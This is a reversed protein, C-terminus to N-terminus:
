RAPPAVCYTVNTDETLPVMQQVIGFMDMKRVGALAMLRYFGYSAGSLGLVGVLIGFITELDTTKYRLFVLVTLFLCSFFMIMTARSKRNEVRWEEVPSDSAPPIAYIDYANSFLYSFFFVIHAVWFSPAVNFETDKMIASPVLQGIDSAPRYIWAHLGPNAKALGFTFLRLLYVVVPVFLAHGSFLAIMGVNGFAISFFFLINMLIM